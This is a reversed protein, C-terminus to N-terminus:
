AKPRLAEPSYSTPVLSERFVYLEYASPAATHHGYWHTADEESPEYTQLSGGTQAEVAATVADALKLEDASFASPQSKTYYLLADVQEPYFKLSSLASLGTAVCKARAESSLKGLGVESIGRALTVFLDGRDHGFKAYAALADTVAPTPVKVPALYHNCYTISDAIDDFLTASFHDSDSFAKVIALLQVTEFKTFNSSINAAVGEYLAKDYCHVAHLGTVLDTVQQADM